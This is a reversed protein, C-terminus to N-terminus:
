FDAIRCPIRPCTGEWSACRGYVLTAAAMKGGTTRDDEGFRAQREPDRVTQTAADKVNLGQVDLLDPSDLQPGRPPRTPRVLGHTNKLTKGTQDM